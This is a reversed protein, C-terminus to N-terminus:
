SFLRTSLRVEGSGLETQSVRWMYGPDPVAATEAEEVSAFVGTVEIFEYQDSWLELVYLQM